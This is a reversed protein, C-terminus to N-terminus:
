RTPTSRERYGPYTAEVIDAIVQSRGQTYFHVGPVGADLLESVQEICFERGADRIEQLTKAREVAEVLRNPLEINFTQPLLELDRRRQLPKIGPIIPVEIGAARCREVYSFYHSNEFFMQTVIYHAGAEIKGKLMAIDHELNPAEIHKEPYGAVGISFDAWEKEAIQRVLSDSYQHGGPTAVFRRKGAPPDGRLVLVNDIELFVLESLLDDIQEKTVGGCIIHPVVDIGYKYQIAASLGLTGPRKRLSVRELLGDEREQYITEMQHNTINIYAPNYPLLLEIAEYISDITEGQLPPLLEFTFLPGQAQKIIECVKM